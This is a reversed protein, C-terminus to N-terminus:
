SGSSYTSDQLMIPPVGNGLKDSHLFKSSSHKTLIWLYSINLLGYTSIVEIKWIQISLFKSLAIAHVISVEQFIKAVDSGGGNTLQSTLEIVLIWGTSVKEVITLLLIALKEGISGSGTIYNSSRWGWGKFFTGFARTLLGDGNLIM